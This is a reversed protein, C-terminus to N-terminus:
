LIYTTAICPTIFYYPFCHIHCCYLIYYPLLSFIYTNAIFPTVLTFFIHAAAIFSTILYYSFFDQPLLVQHLLTVIPLVHTHCCYMTYNPLLSLIFYFCYLTYYPVLTILFFNVCQYCCMNNYPSSICTSAICFACRYYHPSFTIKLM